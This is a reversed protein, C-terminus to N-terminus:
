RTWEKSFATGGIGSSHLALRWCPPHCGTSSRCLSPTPGTHASGWETLWRGTPPLPNRFDRRLFWCKISWKGMSVATFTKVAVCGGRLAGRTHVRSLRQPTQPIVEEEGLCLGAHALVERVETSGRGYTFLSHPPSPPPAKGRQFFIDQHDHTASPQKLNIKFIKRLDRSQLRLSQWQDWLSIAM